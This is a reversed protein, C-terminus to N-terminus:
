YWEWYIIDAGEELNSLFDKIQEIADEIQEFYYEDYEYSGFFFGEQVPLIEEAKSHDKSVECLDQYLDNLTEISIETAGNDEFNELRSFWGRIQNCKRWYIESDVRGKIQIGHDLGM